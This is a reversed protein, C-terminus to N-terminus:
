NESDAKLWEAAAQRKFRIMYTDPDPLHWAVEFLDFHGQLAPLLYLGTSSYGLQELIVFDVKKSVLDRIVAKQDKDFKYGVTFLNPAYYGFLEPKRCCVMTGPKAKENMQKAMHFYNTYAPPYPLKAQKHLEVVPEKMPLLMLLLVLLWLADLKLKGKALWNCLQYIGNYFCFFLMPIIPTVYRSGNGGHWLAFIGINSLLFAIMMWRWQGMKWAGYFVIGLIVLGAVIGMVGSPEQYDINSFPFLVERFGKIVTEDFNTLMKDFMESFSSINGEEPRWPNVTMVTGLYRSKLGYAANRVSWPAVLAVIGVISGGAALWEKRFLFFVVLGFLMSAGVSRIYYAAVASVIAAYFWVSKYFAKDQNSYAYLSLMSLIVCFMYSMESMAMGAFHLLNVSMIVLAAIAFAYYKQKMIRSCVWYLMLVCLLMFIGNLVKFAILNDIGASILVSLLASYGPPFNSTPTVGQPGVTAYGLGNSMNRALMIYTANDGNLDLKHDLTYSFICTFFVALLGILVGDKIDFIRKM